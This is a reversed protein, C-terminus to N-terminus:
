VGKTVSQYLETINQKFAEKTFGDKYSKLGNVTLQQTLGNEEIVRRLADVFAEKDDIDVLLGNEEHNVYARPGPAKTAVLPTETAWAELIVAGFSDNRSPFVCIDATSLLAERDNRWGLFRVRNNLGLEQCKM